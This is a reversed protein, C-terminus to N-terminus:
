LFDEAYEEYGIMFDEANYKVELGREQLIIKAATIYADKFSSYLGPQRLCNPIFLQNDGTVMAGKFAQYVSESDTNGLEVADCQGFDLLYFGIARHQFDVTCAQGDVAESGLVFEVDDGNIGAGWHMIAFAKGMSGALGHIDLGLDMMSRLYLPFNRLSFTEPTYIAHDRGLYTRVLCHKNATESLLCNVTDDFDRTGDDHPYFQKILAKRTVKPLPLIRDMEVLISPTRYGNPFTNTNTFWFKDSDDIINSLRPVRVKSEISAEYKDFAALVTEHVRYEHQLNTPLQSNGPLEKKMALPNGVREFIVGQLGKGIQVAHQLEPRAAAEFGKVYSSATAIVSTVALSQTLIVSNDLPELDTAKFYHRRYESKDMSNFRLQSFKFLRLLSPDKLLVLFFL